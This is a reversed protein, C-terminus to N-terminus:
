GDAPQLSYRSVNKAKSIMKRENRFLVGLGLHVRQILFVKTADKNLGVNDVDRRM